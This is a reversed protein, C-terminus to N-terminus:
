SFKGPLDGRALVRRGIRQAIVRAGDVPHSCNLRNMCNLNKLCNMGNLVYV